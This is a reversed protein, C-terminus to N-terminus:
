QIDVNLTFTQDTETPAWPRRYVVVLKGMGVEKATIEINFFGGVGVMGEQAPKDQVYEITNELKVSEIAIWSYGTTPNGKM